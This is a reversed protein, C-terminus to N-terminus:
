SDFRMDAFHLSLVDSGTLDAINVSISSSFPLFTRTVFLPSIVKDNRGNSILVTRSFTPYSSTDAGSPTNGPGLDRSQAESREPHCLPTSPIIRETMRLPTSRSYAAARLRLIEGSPSPPKASIGRSRKAGSPIVSPTSPIVSPTSPIVSPTSPIIRETM